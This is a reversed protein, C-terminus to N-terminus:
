FRSIFDIKSKANQPNNLIQTRMSMPFSFDFSIIDFNWKKKRKDGGDDVSGDDRDNINQRVISDYVSPAFNNHCVCTRFLSQWIAIRIELHNNCKRLRCWIEHMLLFYHLLWYSICFICTSICVAYPKNHRQRKNMKRKKKPTKVHQTSEHVVCSVWFM